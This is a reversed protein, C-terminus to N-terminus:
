SCPRSRGVSAAAPTAKAGEVDRLFTRLDGIVLDPRVSPFFHGVGSHIVTRHNRLCRELLFCSEMCRSREGFSLLTPHRMQRLERESPGGGGYLDAALTTAGLREWRRMARMGPRRPVVGAPGIKRSEEELAAMEELLAYLVKPTEAGFEVGRARLAERRAQWFSADDPPPLPQLNPVRCDILSLSRARHPREVLHHLAVAGGYSHGALHPREIELHDLLAGLDAALIKTTYGSPTVESLGHGRLDYLTVRWSDTLRPLIRLYWFSLDAALGHVMVLDPGKGAQLYHILVGNVTAKPM